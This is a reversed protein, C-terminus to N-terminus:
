TQNVCCHMTLKSHGPMFIPGPVKRNSLTPSSGCTVIQLPSRSAQFAQLAGCHLAAVHAADRFCAERKAVLIGIGKRREVATEADAGKDVTLRDGIVDAAEIRFTAGIVARM